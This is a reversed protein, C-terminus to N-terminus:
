MQAPIVHITWNQIAHLWHLCCHLLPHNCLPPPCPSLFSFSIFPFLTPCVPSHSVLVLVMRVKGIVNDLLSTLGVLDPLTPCLVQAMNLLLMHSALHHPALCPPPLNGTMFPFCHFCKQIPMPVHISHSSLPLSLPFPQEKCCAPACTPEPLCASACHTCTPLYLHALMPLFTHAPLCPHSHLYLSVFTLMFLFFPHPWEGM